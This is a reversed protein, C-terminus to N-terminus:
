QLLIQPLFGVWAQPDQEYSKPANKLSQIHAELLLDQAAQASQRAEQIKGVVDNGLKFQKSRHGDLLFEAEGDIESLFMDMSILTEADILNYTDKTLAKNRSAIILAAERANARDAQRLREVYEGYQKKFRRWESAYFREFDQASDKAAAWATSIPNFAAVMRDLWDRSNQTTRTTGRGNTSGGLGAPMSTGNGNTTSGRGATGVDLQTGVPGFTALRMLASNLELIKAQAADYTARQVGMETILRKREVTSEKIKAAIKKPAKQDVDIMLEGVLTDYDSTLKLGATRAAEGAVRTAEIQDLIKQIQNKVDARVAENQAGIDTINGTTGTSGTNLGSLIGEGTTRSARTGTSRLVMRRVNDTSAADATRNLTKSRTVSTALFAQTNKAGLSLRNAYYSSRDNTRISNSASRVAGVLQQGKEVGSNSRVVKTQLNTIGNQTRSNAAGGMNRPNAVTRLNNAGVSYSDLGPTPTLMLYDDATMGAMPLGTSIPAMARMTEIYPPNAMQDLGWVSPDRTQDIITNWAQAENAGCNIDWGEGQIPVAVGAVSLKAWQTDLNQAAYAPLIACKVAKAAAFAAQFSLPQKTNQFQSARIRCRATQEFVDQEDAYEKTPKSRLSRLTGNKQTIIQTLEQSTLDQVELPNPTYTPTPYDVRFSAFLKEKADHAARAADECANKDMDGTCCKRAVGNIDQAFFGLGDSVTKRGGWGGSLYNISRFQYPAEVRSQLDGLSAVIKSKKDRLNGVNLSDYMCEKFELMDLEAFSDKKDAKTEARKLSSTKVRFSGEIDNIYTELAQDVNVQSNIQRLPDAIYHARTQNYYNEITRMDNSDNIRDRNAQISSVQAEHQSARENVQRTFEEFPTNAIGDAHASGSVVYLGFGFFALRLKWSVKNLDGLM